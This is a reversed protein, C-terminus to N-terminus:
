QASPAFAAGALLSIAHMAAAAGGVAYLLFMTWFLVPREERRAVFGAKFGNAGCPLWGTALSRLAIAVLGVGMVLFFAGQVIPVM